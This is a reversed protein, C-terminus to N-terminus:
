YATIETWHSIQIKPLSNTMEALEIENKKIDKM